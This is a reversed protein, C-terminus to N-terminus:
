KDEKDRLQIFMYPKGQKDVMPIVKWVEKRFSWHDIHRYTVNGVMMIQSREERVKPDVAFNKPFYSVQIRVKYNPLLKLIDLISM